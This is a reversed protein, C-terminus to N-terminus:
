SVAPCSTYLPRSVEMVWGAPTYIILHPWAVFFTFNQFRRAEKGAHLGTHARKKGRGSMVTRGPIKEHGDNVQPRCRGSDRFCRVQPLQKQGCKVNSAIGKNMRTQLCGFIRAKFKLIHAKYKLICPVYKKKAGLCIKEKSRSPAFLM